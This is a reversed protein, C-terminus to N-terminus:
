VGLATKLKAEDEDSLTNIKAILKDDSINVNTKVGLANLASIVNAKVLVQGWITINADTAGAGTDSADVEQGENSHLIFIADANDIVPIAIAQARTYERLPEIESYKSALIFEDVTEYTAVKSRYEPDNEALTAYALTGVTETTLFVLTNQDHEPVGGNFGSLSFPKVATQIGNKEFRVSRDIVLLKVGYEDEFITQFQKSNPVVSGGSIGLSGAFLAIAEDSTRMLNFNVRDLAITTITYGKDNAASLIRAVDSLPKYGDSGWPVEAGFTNEPKYGYDARIGVGTNDDQVLVQGHSLAYLFMYELREYVGNVCKTLDDFITRVIQKESVAPSAILYKINQILRATKFLKMGIVPIEGTAKGLSDRKKLPLESDIDVVDAAVISKSVDLSTWKGDVSLERRLMTKHLYTLANKSDNIKETISTVLAGFWKKVYTVFLTENM